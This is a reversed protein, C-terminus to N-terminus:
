EDCACCSNDRKKRPIVLFYLQPKKTMAQQPTYHLINFYKMSVIIACFSMQFRWNVEIPTFRHPTLNRQKAYQTMIYSSLNVPVLWFILSTRCSWAWHILIIWVFSVKCFAANSKKQLVSMWFLIEEYIHLSTTAQLWFINMRYPHDVFISM